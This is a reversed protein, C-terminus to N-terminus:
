AYMINLLYSVDGNNCGIFCFNGQKGPQHPRFRFTVPVKAHQQDSIYAYVTDPRIAKIEFVDPRNFLHHVLTRAAKFGHLFAIKILPRTRLVNRQGASDDSAFAEHGGFSGQPKEHRRSAARGL